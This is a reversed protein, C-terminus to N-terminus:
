KSAIQNGKKQNVVIQKVFNPFSAKLTNFKEMDPSREMRILADLLRKRIV